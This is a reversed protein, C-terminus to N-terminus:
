GARAQARLRVLKPPPVYSQKWSTEIAEDFSQVQPLHRSHGCPQIFQLFCRKANWLPGAARWCCIAM